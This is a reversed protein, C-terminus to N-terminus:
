LLMSFMTLLQQLNKINYYLYEELNQICGALAGADHEGNRVQGNSIQQQFNTMSNNILVEIYASMINNYQKFDYELKYM